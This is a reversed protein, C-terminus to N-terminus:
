AALRRHFWLRALVGALAAAALASMVAVADGEGDSAPPSGTSLTVSGGPVAPAPVVQLPTVTSRRSSAAPVRVVSPRRTISTAPQGGVRKLTHTSVAAGDTAGSGGVDDLAAPREDDDVITVTARDVIVDRDHPDTLLVEFREQDEIRDDDVLTVTVTSAVQGVGMLVRGRTPTYDSTGEADLDETRFDVASDEISLTNTRRLELTVRLEHEIVTANAHEFHIGTDAAAAPTPRACALGLGVVAVVAM